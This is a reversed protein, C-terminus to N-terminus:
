VAVLTTDSGGARYYEILFEVAGRGEITSRPPPLDLAAPHSPQGRQVRTVPFDERALPRSLGKYVPISVGIHGIVRLTNETSQDVDVNGNVTTVAVLRSIATCPQWCSRWRTTLALIWM